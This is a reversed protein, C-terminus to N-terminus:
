VGKWTLFMAGREDVRVAQDPLILTTSADEEVIAPGEFRDGSLLRSRDYIDADLWTGAVHVRRSEVRAAVGNSGSGAIRPWTPREIGGIGTVKLAVIEKEEEPAHHLYAQLHLDDFRTAVIGREPDMLRGSPVPVTLAHGQGLYRLDMARIFTTRDESLGDRRLMGRALDELARYADEVRDADVDALTAVFTQHYDHKLDACLLGWAAFNGPSPPVVVTPIGLERAILSSHLSGAGGFSFLAFERPDIGRDVTMTRIANAMNTVAIAVIGEATAELSTGLREAVRGVALRSLEPDITFKGGLFSSARLRALAINADTITAETGGRGYGAPGPDAGASAPGVHLGGGSDIWAISGGGAGIAHIDLTPMLIPYSHDNSTPTKIDLTPQTRYDGDVVISVDFSTGGMDTGIANPIGLETALSKTGIVGGVVGSNLTYVPREKAVASTTVGGNSQMLHMEHLFGLDSMRSDLSDLYSRMIPLLGANFAATSSREYERWERAVDTSVTVDVDPLAQRLIEAVRREHADNAYSHLLCVGVAEVNEDQLRPILAHLSKEDLPQMVSGDYLMRETVEFRLHRPILPEPKSYFPDYVEPRNSRQLELIDRFGETTIFATKGLKGQLIANLCVTTGHVFYEVDGIRERISGLSDILGVSYDLPTSPAKDVVMEGSADDIYVADTFTGGIDVSLRRV